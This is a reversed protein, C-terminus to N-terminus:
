RTNLLLGPVESINVGLKVACSNVELIACTLQKWDFASTFSCCPGNIDLLCEGDYSYIHSHKGEYIVHGKAMAEARSKDPNSLDETPLKTITTKLLDAAISSQPLAPTGQPPCPSSPFLYLTIKLDCFYTM